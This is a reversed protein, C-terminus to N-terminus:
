DLYVREKFLQLFKDQGCDIPSDKYGTIMNKDFIFSIKVQTKYKQHIKTLTATLKNFEDDGIDQFQRDMAVIVEKAGAEVLQHIHYASISSGCCAVAINNPIGFYSMYLLVSKESEFIIAKGLINIANKAWNLGYLNMGLPHNFQTTRDLRLPRYKGWRDIDDQAMSRGRLGIFRGAADFHPITIQDAGPFYGIQTHQLVEETM